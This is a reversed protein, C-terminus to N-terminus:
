LFSINNILWRVLAQLEQRVCLPAESQWLSQRCCILMRAILYRMRHACHTYNIKISCNLWNSKKGIPRKISNHRLWVSVQEAAKSWNKCSHCLSSLKLAMVFLWMGASASSSFSPLSLLTAIWSWWVGVWWGRGIFHHYNPHQQHFHHRHFHCPKVIQKAIWSRCQSQIVLPFSLCSAHLRRRVNMAMYWESQNVIFRFDIWTHDAINKDLTLTATWQPLKFCENSM